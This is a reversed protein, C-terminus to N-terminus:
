QRCREFIADFAVDCAGAPPESAQTQCAISHFWVAGSIVEDAEVSCTATVETADPTTLRLVFEGSMSPGLSRVRGAARFWPLRPHRLSVSVDFAGPSDPAALVFCAIRTGDGDGDIARAGAGDVFTQRASTEPLMVEFEIPCSGGAASSARVSAAAQAPVAAFPSPTLELEAPVERSGTGYVPLPLQADGIDGCSLAFACLGASRAAARTEARPNPRGRALFQRRQM